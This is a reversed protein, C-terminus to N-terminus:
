LLRHVHLCMILMSVGMVPCTITAETCSYSM